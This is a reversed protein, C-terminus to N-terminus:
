RFNVSVDSFYLKFSGDENQHMQAIKLGGKDVYDEWTTITNPEEQNGRRFIWEKIMYDDGFYFDYADGPTYGGETNYVVTLKQLTDGSIPAVAKTTYKETLNDKDWLINIPALMWYKDNIFAADVKAATSDVASRNYTTTQGMSIGTIENLKRNWIWSREFHATDRDVNFTFRLEEVKNWNAIGHATALKEIVTPEKEATQPEVKKDSKCGVSFLAGLITFCVYKKMNEIKALNIDKLYVLLYNNILFKKQVPRFAYCSAM